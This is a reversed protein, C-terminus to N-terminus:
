NPLSSQLAKSSSCTQEFEILLNSAFMPFHIVLASPQAIFNQRNYLAPSLLCCGIEEAVVKQLSRRYFASLTGSADGSRALVHGGQQARTALEM